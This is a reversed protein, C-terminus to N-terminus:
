QQYCSGTTHQQCNCHCLMDFNHKLSRFFVGFTVVDTIILLTQVVSVNGKSLDINNQLFFPNEQNNGSQILVLDEEKKTNDKM